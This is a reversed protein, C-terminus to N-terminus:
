NFTMAHNGNRPNLAYCIKCFVLSKNNTSGGDQFWKVRVHLSDDNDDCGVHYTLRVSATSLLKPCEAKKIIRGTKTM